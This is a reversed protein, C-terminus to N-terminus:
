KITKTYLTSLLNIALIFRQRFKLLNTLHNFFLYNGVLFYRVIFFIILIFYKNTYYDVVILVNLIWM